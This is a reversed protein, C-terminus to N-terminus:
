LHPCDVASPQQYRSPDYQSAIAVPLRRVQHSRGRDFAGGSKSAAKSFSQAVAHALEEENTPNIDAVLRAHPTVYPQRQM